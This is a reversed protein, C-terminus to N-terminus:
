AAKRKRGLLGIGGLGGLGSLLLWVAAPLPVATLSSINYYVIGTSGTAVTEFYGSGGSSQLVPLGNVDYPAPPGNLTMSSVGSTTTDPLIIQEFGNFSGIGSGGGQVYSETYWSSPGYTAYHVANVGTGVTATSSFVLAAPAVSGPPIGAGGISQYDWSASGPLGGSVQNAAGYNITYTGTIQQGTTLASYIAPRRRSRGPSTM